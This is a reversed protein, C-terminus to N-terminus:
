RKDNFDKDKCKQTCVLSIGLVSLVLTGQEDGRAQILANACASQIYICGDVM